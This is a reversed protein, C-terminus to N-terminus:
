AAGLVSRIKKTDFLRKVEDTIGLKKRTNLVDFLLVSAAISRSDGKSRVAGRTRRAAERISKGEVGDVMAVHLFMAYSEGDIGSEDKLLAAEAFLRNAAAYCENNDALRAIWRLAVYCSLRGRVPLQGAAAKLLRQRVYDGLLPDNGDVTKKIGEAGHYYMGALAAYRSLQM